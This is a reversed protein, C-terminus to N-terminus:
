RAITFLDHMPQGPWGDPRRPPTCGAACAPPPRLSQERLLERWGAALAFRPDLTANYGRVAGFLQAVADFDGPGAPAVRLAPVM